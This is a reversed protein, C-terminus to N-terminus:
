SGFELSTQNDFLCCKVCYNFEHVEQLDFLINRKCGSCRVEKLVRNIKVKGDKELKDVRM